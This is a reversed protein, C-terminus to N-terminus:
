RRQWNGSADLRLYARDVWRGVRDRAPGAPWTELFRRQAALSDYEDRMDNCHGHEHLLVEAAWLGVPLRLRRAARRVTAVEVWSACVGGSLIMTEGQVDPLCRGQTCLSMRWAPAERRMRRWGAPDLRHIEALAGALLRDSTDAALTPWAPATARGPAPAPTPDVRLALM